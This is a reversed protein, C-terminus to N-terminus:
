QDKRKPLIGQPHRIHPSLGVCSPLVTYSERVLSQVLPEANREDGAEVPYSLLHARAHVSVQSKVVRRFSVALLPFSALPSLRVVLTLWATIM